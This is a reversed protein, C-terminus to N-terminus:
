GEVLSMFSQGVVCGLWPIDLKPVRPCPADGALKLLFSFHFGTPM